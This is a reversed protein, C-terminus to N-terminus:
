GKPIIRIEEGSIAYSFASVGVLISIAPMISGKVSIPQTFLQGIAGAVMVVSGGIVTYKLVTQTTTNM